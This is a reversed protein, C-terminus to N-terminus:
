GYIGTQFLVWVTILACLSLTGLASRIRGENRETIFTSGILVCSAVTMAATIGANIVEPLNLFPLVALIVFVYVIQYIVLIVIKDSGKEKMQQEGRDNKRM